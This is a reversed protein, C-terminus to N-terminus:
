LTPLYDPDLDLDELNTTDEDEEDLIGSIDSVDINNHSETDAGGAFIDDLEDLESVEDETITNADDDDNIADEDDESIIIINPEDDNDDEKTAASIKEKLQEILEQAETGFKEVVDIVRMEKDCKECFEVHETEHGCSPCSYFVVHVSVRPTVVKRNDAAKSM